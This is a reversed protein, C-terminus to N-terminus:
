DGDVPEIRSHPGPPRHLTADIQDIKQVVVRIDGHDGSITIMPVLM